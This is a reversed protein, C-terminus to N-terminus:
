PILCSFSRYQLAETVHSLNITDSGELDAISRSLKLVRDFSRGTLLGKDIAMGLIDEIQATMPCYTQIDHITMEANTKNQKYRKM